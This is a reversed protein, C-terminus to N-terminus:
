FLPKTEQVRDKKQLEILVQARPVSELEYFVGQAMLVNAGIVFYGNLKHTGKYYYLEHEKGKMLLHFLACHVYFSHEVGEITKGEENARCSM